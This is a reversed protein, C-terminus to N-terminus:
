PSCLNEKLQVTSKFVTNVWVFKSKHKTAELMEEETATLAPALVFSIQKVMIM